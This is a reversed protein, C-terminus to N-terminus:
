EEVPQPAPMPQLPRPAGRQAARAAAAEAAAKEAADRAAQETESFEITANDRMTKSYAGWFKRQEQQTLFQTIQDKAEEFSKKEAEKKDTLKILHYGFSTKVIDTTQGVELEFAAKEFAPDMQGKGFFGLDGGKASSPCTSVDKAVVDFAEGADLRAKAAQIKELEAPYEDAKIGRKGCLIHSAQVQEKQEFHQPNEDYFKQADAETVVADPSLKEMLAKMQIQSRIQGKIDEMTMGMKAIEAEVDELSQDRQGAIKKIEEITQEDTVAAINNKEMEQSMLIQEIKMDVVRTRMQQQMSEPMEMGPPMRKKQMEAMRTVEVSVEEEIIEQGNVTVVVAELDIQEVVAEEIVPVEQEQAPEEVVAVEEQVVVEEVVVEEPQAPAEEAAVETEEEAEIDEVVEAAEETIVEQGDTMEAEKQCGGLAIAVIAISVFVWLKKM